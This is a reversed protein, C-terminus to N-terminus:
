AEGAYGPLEAALKARASEVYESPISITYEDERRMYGNVTCIAVSARALADFVGALQENLEIEAVEAQHCRFAREAQSLQPPLAELEADVTRVTAAFNDLTSRVVRLEGDLKMLTDPMTFEDDEAGMAHSASQTEAAIRQELEGVRKEFKAIAKVAQARETQLLLRRKGLDIIMTRMQELKGPADIIVRLDRVKVAQEDAKRRLDKAIWHADDRVRHMAVETDTLYRRDANRRALDVCAQDKAEYDAQAAAAEAQLADLVRQAEAHETKLRTYYGTTPKKSFPNLKM